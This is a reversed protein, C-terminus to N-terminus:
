YRGTIQRDLSCAIFGCFCYIFSAMPMMIMFIKLFKWSNSIIHRNVGLAMAMHMAMYPEDPFIEDKYTVLRWVVFRVNGFSYLDNMLRKIHQFDSGIDCM